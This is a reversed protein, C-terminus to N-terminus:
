RQGYLRKAAERHKAMRELHKARLREARAAESEPEPEAAPAPAPAPAPVPAAEEYGGESAPSESRSRSASSAPSALSADDDESDKDSDARAAPTVALPEVDAGWDWGATGPPPARAVDIAVSGVVCGQACCWRVWPGWALPERLLTPAHGVVVLARRARTLAVNGRRWDSLFGVDGGANARVTSVVVVEKERGQFADVSAVEVEVAGDGLRQRVLRAQAAYPTVVGVDAARVSGGTVLGAVVDAVAAAEADNACSTGERREAAAVSLFAVPADARPWAFGRPPATPRAVVTAADRLAGGYFRRSPFARLPGPMRYQTRLTLVPARGAAALREFLSAGLGDRAADRSAVSAPLQRDDGVLVLRRCGRALGVLAALETAHAAEDVLVHTFRLGRLVAARSGVCTACLVHAKRLRAQQAEWAAANQAGDDGGAAKERRRAELSLVELSHRGLARAAAPCRADDRWHAPTGVRVARVRAAVLGELLHDVAVHSESLCLVRPGPPEAAPRDRKVQILRGNAVKVKPLAAARDGADRAAWSALCRVAVATKGTGPPGRVLAVSAPGAVCAEVARRQDEDLPAGGDAVACRADDDDDTGARTLGVIAGAVAGAPFWWPPAARPPAAGYRPRAAEGRLPAYAAAALVWAAEVAREFAVRNGLPEVRWRTRAALLAAVVDAGTAARRLRGALGAADGRAPTSSAGAAGLLRRRAAQRADDRRREEIHADDDHRPRRRPACDAAGGDDDRFGCRLLLRGGRAAAVEAEVAAGADGVPALAVAEGSQFGAGAAGDCEVEDPRRGKTLKAGTIRKAAGGARAADAAQRAEELLELAAWGCRRAAFGVARAHARRATRAAAAGLEDESDTADGAAHRAARRAVDTADEDDAVPGEATAPPELRAVAALARALAAGDGPPVRAVQPLARLAAAFTEADVPRARRSAQKPGLAAKVRELLRTAERM